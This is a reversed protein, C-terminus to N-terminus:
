PIWARCFTSIAVILCSLVSIHSFENILHDLRALGVAVAHDKVVHRQAEQGAGLDAHHARVAHALGRQELDHGADLVDRVALCVQGRAERDADQLLLRRQVVGLGDALVDLHREALDGLLDGAEVLDALLHRVRVRVEVRQHLLHARQLGLDVGRVAPIQVRLEFLRHVRQLARIRVGRDRHAGAALAATHRQALQQELSGIQQQEVLGGVVQVGLRDQPQLLEQVLILAGDDGHGVVAVEHVIHRLPDALHVAAMQVRVLAVVGGIQLGLGLTHLDLAGLVGLQGLTQLGLEFPHTGRRLGTLGLVLGTQFAVILHLLLRAVGLLEVEGLDLNRRPRTQPRLHQLGLMDVLGEAVAHEDVIQAERQRAVADDAHDARVADALGRQELRDDAQFREGRTLQGHAFGDLDAVHILVACAEVRLFVQPLGDGVPQVENLDAAHLHRGTGIHGAEAELTGVLLLQGAHEGATLAVAQVQRQGQLLAAVQQQEVLGGVIQVDLREFRQLVRQDLERAAGHDDAVVTPEQVADGRM